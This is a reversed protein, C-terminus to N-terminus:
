LKLMLYCHLNKKFLSLSPQQKVHVPLNNWTDVIRQSFFNARFDHSSRSRKLNLHYSSQRTPRLSTDGFTEFWTKPDVRDIKHLIKYTQVLDSQQRRLELSLINLEKLKENYSKSKLGCIANIAKIQVKEVADIDTKLWPNWAPSCFELLPRVRQKYLTLFTKKDRYHFCKMIQQLSHFAKRVIEQCHQTPKLNAAVQVGIDKEVVETTIKKSDITYDYNPNGRGFHLVKCKSINFSMGWEKTWNCLNDLSSQLAQRDHDSNIKQGIKTDDAFKRLITLLPAAEDICNIFILFLLPGLCSGQVVGSIVDQWSSYKGNLVVRQKRGSLWNKIWNYVNGSIGHMKLAEMLREKPVLDFAKSFDLYIVDFGNKEDVCKTVVELFELLNTTCSKNKMFGHQSDHLLDNEGLFSYIQDKLISEMIKGPVSTLSIPRYNGPNSKGGKKFIPTVNAKKWDEPVNGTILSQKFIKALPYSLSSSFTKLLRPSIEDPGPASHTKLDDLKAKVVDASFEVNSLCNACKPPVDVSVQSAPAASFISTFYQNLEEAIEQDEQVLKGDILLPGISRRNATKSNIYSYFHKVHGQKALKKEYRKKARKVAKRSEKESKKYEDWSAKTQLRTHVKFRRQKIRILRLVDKEFWPPKSKKRRVKTPLYKKCGEKLILNFRKWNEDASSSNLATEWDINLLYEQFRAENLNRWDPVLQETVPLSPPTALIDSLIISHDSNQLNGMNEITMFNEPKNTLILDLTNGKNHTPFTVLQSLNNNSICELFSRSKTDCTYNEWNINPFNFDGIIIHTDKKFDINSLMEVLKNNNEICSNPSRYVITFYLKDSYDDNSIFFTVYQNFDNITDVKTVKLGSKLYIVIGAGIGNINSTKDIRLDSEIFYGEINLMADTINKNAWSETIIIIDPEHDTALLTLEDLKNLLSRANTYLM